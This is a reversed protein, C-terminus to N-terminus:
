FLTARSTRISDIQHHYSSGFFIAIYSAIDVDETELIFSNVYLYPWTISFHKMDVGTCRRVKWDLTKNINCLIAEINTSQLVHNERWPVKIGHEKSQHSKRDTIVLYRTIEPRANCRARRILSQEVINTVSRGYLWVIIDSCSPQSHLTMKKNRGCASVYLAIINSFCAWFKIQEKSCNPNRCTDPNVAETRVSGDPKMKSRPLHYAEMGGWCSLVGGEYEKGTTKGLLM